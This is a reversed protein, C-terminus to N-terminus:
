QKGVIRSMGQSTSADSWDKDRTDCLMRGQTDEGPMRILVGTM